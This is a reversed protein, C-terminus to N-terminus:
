VPRSLRPKLTPRIARPNRWLRVIHRRLTRASYADARRFADDIVAFDAAEIFDDFSMEGADLDVGVAIGEVTLVAKRAHEIEEKYRARAANLVKHMEAHAKKGAEPLLGDAALEHALATLRKVPKAHKKPLAQSPLPTLKDWIEKPIAPNPKLEEPNVLVRRGPLEEGGDGGSMLTKAVETVSKKDFLPLMCDVANLRENGAIRRALPTRVMRGLLQTIHTRDRAPRFSVMVEARPCDWGTSIADKAILM